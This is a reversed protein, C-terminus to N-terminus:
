PAGAGHSYVGWRFTEGNVTHEQLRDVGSGGAASLSGDPAHITGTAGDWDGYGAHAMTGVFGASAADLEVRFVVSPQGLFGVGYQPLRPDTMHDEDRDFSWSANQDDELGVEIWAVIPGASVVEEPVEAFLVEPADGPPTAGTVGDLDNIEAYTIVDMSDREDIELVDNRPPYRSTEGPAFRGKDSRFTAPSPCTLIDVSIADHEVPTLPRCFYSEPSSSNEHWGMSNQDEPDDDHFVIKPYVTGRRASWVPLASARAGYPARWSSLLDWSGPRNGIGLKGVAQTVFVDQVHADGQEIWIAIQLGPVPLFHFELLAGGQETPSTPGTPSSTSSMSMSGSADATTGASGEESDGSTAADGCSAGLTVAATAIVAWRAARRVRRTDMM